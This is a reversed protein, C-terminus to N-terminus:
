GAYWHGDSQSLSRKCRSTTRLPRTTKRGPWPRSRSSHSLANGLGGPTYAELPGIISGDAILDETRLSGGECARVRQCDAARSNRRLFEANRDARRDLNIYFVHMTKESVRGRIARRIQVAHQSPQRKGAEPAHRPRRGKMFGIKSRLVVIPKTGEAFM